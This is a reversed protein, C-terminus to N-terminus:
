ESRRRRLDFIRGGPDHSEWRRSSAQAFRESPTLGRTEEATVASRYGHMRDSAAAFRESPTKGRMEDATLPSRYGHMRDSARAFAENSRIQNEKSNPPTEEEDQAAPKKGTEVWARYGEASMRCIESHSAPEPNTASWDDRVEEREKQPDGLDAQREERKSLEADIFTIRQGQVRIKM